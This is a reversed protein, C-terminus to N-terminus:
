IPIIGAFTVFASLPDFMEIAIIGPTCSAYWRPPVIIARGPRMKVRLPDGAKTQRLDLSGEVNKSYVLTYMGMTRFERSRVHRSWFYEFKFITHLLDLPNPLIEDIVYPIRHRTILEPSMADVSIQAIEATTEKVYYKASVVWALVVVVIIAYNTKLKTFSALSTCLYSLTPLTPLTFTPLSTPILTLTPLSTPQLTLTPILTPQLTPQLTPILTPSTSTM